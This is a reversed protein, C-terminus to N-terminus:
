RTIGNRYKLLQKAEDIVEQKTQAKIDHNTFTIGGDYGQNGDCGIDNLRGIAPTWMNFNICNRCPNYGSIFVSGSHDCGLCSKTFVYPEALPYPYPDNDYPHEHLDKFPNEVPKNQEKEAKELELLFELEEEYAEISDKSGQIEKNVTDIRSRILYKM